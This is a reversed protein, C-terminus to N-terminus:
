IASYLPVCDEYIITDFFSKKWVTNRLENIRKNMLSLELLEKLVRKTSHPEQQRQALFLREKVVESNLELAYHFLRTANYNMRVIREELTESFDYDRYQIPVHLMYGLNNASTRFVSEIQGHNVYDELLKVSIQYKDPIDNVTWITSQIRGHENVYVLGGFNNFFSRLITNDHKQQEKPPLHNIFIDFLRPAHTTFLAGEGKELSRSFNKNIMPQFKDM